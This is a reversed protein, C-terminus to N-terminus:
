WGARVCFISCLRAWLFVGHFFIEGVEVGHCPKNEAGGGEDASEDEEDFGDFKRELEGDYQHHEGGGEVEETLGPHQLRRRQRFRSISGGSCGHRM